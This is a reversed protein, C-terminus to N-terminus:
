CVSADVIYIPADNKDYVKMIINCCSFEHVIKGIKASPDDNDGNYLVIEPRNCCM